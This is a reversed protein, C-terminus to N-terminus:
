KASYFNLGEDVQQIVELSFAFYIGLLVMLAFFVIASISLRQTM